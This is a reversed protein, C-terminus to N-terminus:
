AFSSRRVGANIIGRSAPSIPSSSRSRPITEGVGDLGLFLRIPLQRPIRARLKPDLECLERGAWSSRDLYLPDSNPHSEVQCTRELFGKAQITNQFPHVPVTRLRHVFCRSAPLRMVKVAVKRETKDNCAVM